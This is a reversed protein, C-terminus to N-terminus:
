ANPYARSLASMARAILASDDLESLTKAVNGGNLAMLIPAGTLKHVNLWINFYGRPAGTEVLGIWTEEKDWFVQDFQLYLKYLLGYGLRDISMRKPAPLPPDFEVKRQKLIGLPLSTVVADYAFTENGVKVSSGTESHTIKSVIHNLRLDYNGALAAFIQRYGQPFAVDHGDYHRIKDYAALNIADLETGYEQEITALELIWDPTAEIRHGDSGRVVHSADGIARELNLSNSLDTLPNDTTGHIWAAGLDVPNSLDDSTWIRGGIRDRAEFVTVSRGAAALTHAATLGSMGAGIIAISQKDTKLVADAAYLGSEHAAHVTGEYNPHCAEGTFFLTEGVAEGLTRHDQRNAGKAVFSYSGLAFPDQGWNTRLYRKARLTNPACGPIPLLAASLGAAASKLFARRKM